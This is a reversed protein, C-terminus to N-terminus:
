SQRIQVGVMPRLQTALYSRGVPAIERGNAQRITNVDGSVTIQSIGRWGGCITYLRALLMGCITHKIGM